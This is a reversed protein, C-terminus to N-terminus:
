EKSFGTVVNKENYTITKFPPASLLDDADIPGDTVGALGEVVSGFAHLSKYFKNDSVTSSHLVLLKASLQNTCLDYRQMMACDAKSCRGLPLALPEVRAKCQLCAKYTDLQPVGIIQVDSIQSNVLEFESDSDAQEVEGIDEIPVTTAGERPMSLYKRYNFERVVFNRLSYCEDENMTDVYQEWLTVKTTSTHDGVIVDQKTKGGPVIIPTKKLLVKVNTTIKQFPQIKKLQLLTVVSPEEPEPDDPMPIEKSSQVIHTSNKLMVEMTHGQRSQKVECNQLSVPTRDRSFTSLRKQQDTRFGVLRLTSTGDTLVGDFYISNRGKKVPSLNKVVGHLNASPIPQSVNDLHDVEPAPRKRSAMLHPSLSSSAM